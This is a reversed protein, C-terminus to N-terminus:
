PAISDTALPAERDRALALALPDAAALDMPYPIVRDARALAAQAEPERGLARLALPYSSRFTFLGDPWGLQLAREFAAVAEAFYGARYAAEGYAAWAYVDRSSGAEARARRYARERASAEDWDPGLLARLRAEDNPRYIVLYRYLFPQWARDFWAYDLAVNAGRYPDNTVFAGRAEDYGRVVRYHAIRYTAYAGPPDELWQTVLVSFGNAALRKLLDATGNTRVLARLGFNAAVWPGINTAPMGRRIDEGRLALRAVEQSVQVGLASLAMVVSAPGCNNWTQGVWQMAIDASPGPAALKFAPAAPPAAPAATADEPVSRREALRPVDPDPATHAIATGASGASSATSFSSLVVAVSLSAVLVREAFAREGLRRGNMMAMKAHGPM